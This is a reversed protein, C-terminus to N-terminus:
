VIGCAVADHDDWGIHGLAGWVPPRHEHMVQRGVFVMGVMVEKEIGEVLLAVANSASTAPDGPLAALLSTVTSLGAFSGPVFKGIHFHCTQM